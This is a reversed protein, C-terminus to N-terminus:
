INERFPNSIPQQLSQSLGLPCHQPLLRYRHKNFRSPLPILPPFLMPKSVTSVTPKSFYPTWFHELRHSLWARLGVAGACIWILGSRTGDVEFCKMRRALRGQDRRSDLRRRRSAWGGAGGELSFCVVSILREATPGSQLNPASTLITLETTPLPTSIPSLLLTSPHMTSSPAFTPLFQLKVPHSTPGPATTSSPLSNKM